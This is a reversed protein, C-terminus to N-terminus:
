HRVEVSRVRGSDYTCASEFCFDCLLSLRDGTFPISQTRVPRHSAFGTEERVGFPSPMAEAAPAEAIFSDFDEEEEEELERKGEEEEEGRSDEKGEQENALVSPEPSSFNQGMLGEAGSDLEKIIQDYQAIFDEGEPDIVMLDSDHGAESVPPAPEAHPEPAGEPERERQPEKAVNPCTDVRDRNPEEESDTGPQPSPLPGNNLPPSQVETQGRAPPRAPEEQSSTADESDKEACLRYVMVDDQFDSEEIYTGKFRLIANKKMEQIHKPPDMPMPQGSSELNDYPGASGVDAGPSMGTDYSDDWELDTQSKDKRPAALMPGMKRPPQPLPGCGPSPPSPASGETLTQLFTEADPSDGDYLASWARCDWMCQLINAHAEWLYQLYSIDLAKGCEVICASPPSVEPLPQEPPGAAPPLSM